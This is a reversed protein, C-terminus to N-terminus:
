KQFFDEVSFKEGKEIKSKEYIQNFLKDEKIEEILYEKQDPQAYRKKVDELKLGTKGSLKTFEEEIEEDSVEIGSNKLLTEVLVRGKLSKEAEGRWEQIFHEKSDGTSALMKELKAPETRFQNALMIWRSELEANLMSEPLEFPNEDILQAIVSDEKMKKLKNEVGDKMNKEIDAKLDELTKYKENVDQALDDDIKPLDRYKLASITVRITKTLGALDKNEDDEAFTKTIDKSEGKKMGIIEDDLKYIGEGSGVTSVFGKRETEKMVNGNNDLEAYDVTVIDNKEVVAGSKKDSVLANRERIKELEKKIDSEAVKVQPVKITFGETKKIEVKPFVDYEVCFSFDKDTELKPTEKMEPYSYALPREYENFKEFTEKLVDEILNSALDSKVADGYKAELVKVPVKGKRFGPLQLEKSYKDLLKEYKSKVEKKKIVISLEARSKGTFKLEKQYDM